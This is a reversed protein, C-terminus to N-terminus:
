KRQLAGAVVRWPTRDALAKIEAPSRQELHTDWITVDHSGDVAVLRTATFALNTIATRNGKITELLRGTLDYIRVAGEHSGVAVRDNTMAVARPAADAVTFLLKGTATSWVAASDHIETVVYASDPSYRVTRVIVDDPAALDLRAITKGDADVLFPASVGSIVARQGNPAWRVDETIEETTTSKNTLLALQPRPLEIGAPLSWARQHEGTVVLKSEDPSIECGTQLGGPDVDRSLVVKGTAISHVVVKEDGVELLYSRTLQWDAGQAGLVRTLTGTVLDFLTAGTPNFTLAHNGVLMVAPRRQDIAAASKGFSESPVDITKTAKGSVLDILTLHSGNAVVLHDGEVAIENGAYHGIFSAVPPKWLRVHDGAEDVTAILSDDKAIAVAHLSTLEDGPAVLEGRLGLTDNWVYAVPGDGVGVLLTQDHSFVLQRIALDADHAEGLLKGNRNWLKVDGAEDATAFLKHPVSSALVTIGARHGGIAHFPLPPELTWLMVERENTTMAVRENLGSDVFAADSWGQGIKEFPIEQYGKDQVSFFGADPSDGIAVLVKSSADFAVHSVQYKAPIALLVAGTELDVVSAGAHDPYIAVQRGDPSFDLDNWDGPLTWLKTGSTVDWGN